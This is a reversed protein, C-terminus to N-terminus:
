DCNSFYYNGTAGSSLYGYKKLARVEDNGSFDGEIDTCLNGWDDDYVDAVDDREDEDLARTVSWFLDEGAGTADVGTGYNEERLAQYLQAAANDIKRDYLESASPPDPLNPAPVVPAPTVPDPTTPPTPPYPTNGGIQELPKKKKLLLAAVGGVVVISTFLIIASSTKM